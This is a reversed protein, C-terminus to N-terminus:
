RQFGCGDGNDKSHETTKANPPSTDPIEKQSEFQCYFENLNNALCSDNTSHPPHKWNSNASRVSARASLPGITKQSSSNESHLREADRVAKNFRYKSEKVKTCSPVCSDACCSIIEVLICSVLSIHHSWYGLGAHPDVLYACIITTYCHYLTFHEVRRDPM